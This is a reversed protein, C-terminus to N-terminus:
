RGAHASPNGPAFVAGDEALAATGAVYVQAGVRVPRSYGAIAEHETGDAAHLREM